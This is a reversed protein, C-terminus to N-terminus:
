YNKLDILYLWFVRVLFHLNKKYELNTFRFEFKSVLEDFCLGM